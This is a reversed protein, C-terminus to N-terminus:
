QLNTDEFVMRVHCSLEARSIIISSQMSFQTLKRLYSIWLKEQSRPVKVVQFQFRHSLPVSM